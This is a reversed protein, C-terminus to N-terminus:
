GTNCGEEKSIPAGIKLWTERGGASMEGGGRCNPLWTYGGSLM